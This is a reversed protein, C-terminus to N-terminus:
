EAEKALSKLVWGTEGSPLKVNFWKDSEDIKIVKEGKRLTTVIKSKTTPETRINSNKLLILYTEAPKDSSADRSGPEVRLMGPSSPPAGPASTQASTQTKLRALFRDTFEKVAADALPRPSEYIITVDATAGKSEIDVNVTESVMDAMRFRNLSVIRQERSSSVVKYGLDLGTAVATNYAYDLDQQTLSLKGPDPDLQLTTKHPASACAFLTVACFVFLFLRTVNERM